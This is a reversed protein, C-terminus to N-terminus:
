PWTTNLTLVPAAARVHRRRDAYGGAGVAVLRGLLLPVSGPVDEDLTQQSASLPRPDFQPEDSRMHPSASDQYIDSSKKRM